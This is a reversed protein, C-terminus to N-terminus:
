CATASLAVTSIVNKCKNKLVRSIAADISHALGFFRATVPKTQYGNYVRMIARANADPQWSAEIIGVQSAANLGEHALAEYSAVLVRMNPDNRFRKAQEARKAPDTGGYILAAGFERLGMRVEQLAAKTSGFLVVKEYDGILLETRVREVIGPAKQLAVYQRWTRVNRELGDLIKMSDDGTGLQGTVSEVLREEREVQPMFEARRLLYTPFYGEWKDKAVAAPTVAVDRFEIM